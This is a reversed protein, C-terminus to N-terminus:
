IRLSVLTTAVLSPPPSGLRLSSYGPDTNVDSQPSVILAATGILRIDNAATQIAQPTLMSGDPCASVSRLLSPNVSTNAHEHCAPAGASAADHGMTMRQACEAACVDAALPALALVVLLVSAALRAISRRHVRRPLRVSRMQASAIVVGAGSRSWM